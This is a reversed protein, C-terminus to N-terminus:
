LVGLVLKKTNEPTQPKQFLKMWLETSLNVLLDLYPEDTKNTSEDLAM